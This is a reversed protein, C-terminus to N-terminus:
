SPISPCAERLDQPAPEVCGANLTSFRYNHTATFPVFQDIIRSQIDLSKSLGKLASVAPTLVDRFAGRALGQLSKGLNAVQKARVKPGITLYDDLHM